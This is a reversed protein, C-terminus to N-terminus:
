KRLNHSKKSEHQFSCQYVPGVPAVCPRPRITIIQEGPYKATARPQTGRIRLRRHTAEGNSRGSYVTLKNYIPRQRVHYKLFLDAMNVCTPLIWMNDSLFMYQDPVKALPLNCHTGRKSKLLYSIWIWTRCFMRGNYTWM